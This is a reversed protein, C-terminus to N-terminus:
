SGARPRSGLAAGQNVHHRIAALVEPSIAQALLERYRHRRLHEDSALAPYAGHPKLLPDAAGAANAHVSSWRYDLPDDVMSARVPNMEIYRYCTLAYQETDVLCSKFRGKDVHVHHICTNCSACFRDRLTGTRRYRDNFRRVYRRGLCQMTSSIAGVADQTM